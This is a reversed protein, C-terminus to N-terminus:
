RSGFFIEESYDNTDIKTSVLSMDIIDKERNKKISSNNSNDNSNDNVFNDNIFNDNIFDGSSCGTFTIISIFTLVSVKLIKM